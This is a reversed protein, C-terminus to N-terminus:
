HRKTKHSAPYINIWHDSTGIGEGGGFQRLNYNNLLAM